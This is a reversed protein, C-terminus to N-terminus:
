AMALSVALINKVFLYGLGQFLKILMIKIPIDSLIKQENAMIGNIEIFQPVGLLLGALHPLFLMPYERIYFVDIKERYGEYLLYIFIMINYFITKILPINSLPVEIFKIPTKYPYPHGSPIFMIVDNGLKILNEAIEILHTVPGDNRDLPYQTITFIKM